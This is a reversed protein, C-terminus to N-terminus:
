SRRYVDMHKQKLYNTFANITRENNSEIASKVENLHKQSMQNNSYLTSAARLLKSIGNFPKPAYSPQEAVSELTSSYTRSHNTRRSPSRNLVSGVVTPTTTNSNSFEGPVYVDSPEEFTPAHSKGNLIDGILSFKRARGSRGGHGSGSSKGGSNGGSSIVSQNQNPVASHPEDYERDYAYYHDEDDSSPPPPPVKDYSSFNNEVEKHISSVTRHMRATSQSIGLDLMSATRIGPPPAVGLKSGLTASPEDVVDLGSIGHLERHISSVTRQHNRRKSSTQHIDPNRDALGVPAVDQLMADQFISKGMASARRIGAPPKTKLKSAISIQHLRENTLNNDREIEVISRIGPINRGRSPSPKTAVPPPPPAYTKKQPRPKYQFMPKPEPKPEIKRRALRQRRLMAARRNMEADAAISRRAPRSIVEEEADSDSDSNNLGATDDGGIFLHLARYWKSADLATRARLAYDHLVTGAVYSDEQIGHHAGSVRPVTITFRKASSGNRVVSCRGKKTSTINIVGKREGPVNTGWSSPTMSLYYRLEAKHKGVRVFTFYRKQWVSPLKSAYGDLQEKTVKKPSKKELWGELLLVESMTQHAIQCLTLLASPFSFLKLRYLRQNCVKQVKKELTHLPHQSTSISKHLVTEPKSIYLLKHM